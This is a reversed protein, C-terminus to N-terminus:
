RDILQQNSLKYLNIYNLSRLDDITLMITKVTLPIMVNTVINMCQLALGYHACVVFWGGVWLMIENM